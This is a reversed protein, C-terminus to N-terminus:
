CVIFGFKCSVEKLETKLELRVREILSREAESPVLPGFGMDLGDLGQDPLNADLDGNEDTNDDENDSMTAGTSEEPTAGLFAICLLAICYWSLLFIFCFRQQYHYM